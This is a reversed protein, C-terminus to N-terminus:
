GNTSCALAADFLVDDIAEVSDLGTIEDRFCDADFSEDEEFGAVINDIYSDVSVCKIIEAGVAQADEGLDPEGDIGADVIAEADDDTLREAASEVCGRDLVLGEGEAVEIFLDAVEGQAGGGGGGCASLALASATIIALFRTRM